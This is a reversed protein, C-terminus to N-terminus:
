YMTALVSDRKKVNRVHFDYYYLGPINKFRWCPNLPFWWNHYRFTVIQIHNRDAQLPSGQRLLLIDPFVTECSKFTAFHLNSPRRPGLANNKVNWRQFYLKQSANNQLRCYYMIVIICYHLLVIICHYWLYYLLLIINYHWAFCAAAAAALMPNTWGM